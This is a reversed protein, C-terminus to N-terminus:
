RTDSGNNAGFLKIMNENIKNLRLIAAEDSESKDAFIKIEYNYGKTNKELKITEHAEVGVEQKITKFETEM